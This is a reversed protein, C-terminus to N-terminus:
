GPLCGCWRTVGSRRAGPTSRPHSSVGSHCVMSAHRFAAYKTVTSARCAAGRNTKRVSDAVNGCGPPCILRRGRFRGPRRGDAGGTAGSACDSGSAGIDALHRQLHFLISHRIWDVDANGTRISYHKLRMVWRVRDPLEPASSPDAPQQLLKQSPKFM